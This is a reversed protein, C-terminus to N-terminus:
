PAGAGVHGELEERWLAAGGLLGAINPVTTVDPGLDVRLHRANGGGVYLHDWFFVRRLGDIAEVMRANWRERGIRARTVNGLRQDYTEGKQFVHASMEVKPLLHGGDFMAFGFGTGLTIVVEFGRGAIVSCGAMEADNVARVPVGLVLSLAAAVDFGRWQEVLQPDAPTFPGAVTVFHPTHVVRGHRLVGPVGISAREYEGLPEALSRVTELFVSTPCPYPTAVRRRPTIMRGHADLVLAKIGTGGSDVVLTRPLAPPSM